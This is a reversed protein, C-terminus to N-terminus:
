NYLDNVQEMHLPPSALRPKKSLRLVEVAAEKMDKLADVYLEDTNSVYSKLADLVIKANELRTKAEELPSTTPSSANAKKEDSLGPIQLTFSTPMSAFISDTRTSIEPASTSKRKPRNRRPTTGEAQTNAGTSLFPRTSPTGPESIHPRVGGSASEPINVTGAAAIGDLARKQEESEEKFEENCSESCLSITRTFIGVHIKKNCHLLDSKPKKVGCVSCAFLAETAPMVFKKRPSRRPVGVAGSSSSDTGEISFSRRIPPPSVPDPLTTEDDASDSDDNLNTQRRQDRRRNHSGENPEQTELRRTQDSDDLSLGDGEDEFEGMKTRKNLLGESIGGSKSHKKPIIRSALSLAELGNAKFAHFTVALAHQTAFAAGTGKYVFNSCFITEDGGGSRNWKAVIKSLQTKIIGFENKLFSGPRQKVFMEDSNFDKRYFPKESGVCPIITGHSIGELVDAEEEGEEEQAAKNTKAYKTSAEGLEEATMDQPSGLILLLRVLKEESWKSSMREKRLEAKEKEEKEKQEQSKIVRKQGLPQGANVATALDVDPNDVLFRTVAIFDDKKVVKNKDYGFGRDERIYQTMLPVTWTKTDAPDFLKANRAKKEKKDPQEVPPITDSSEHPTHALHLESADVTSYTAM